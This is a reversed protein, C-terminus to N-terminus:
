LAGLANVRQNLPCNPIAGCLHRSRATDVFLRPQLDLHSGSPRLLNKNFLKSTRWLLLESFKVKPRPKAVCPRLLQRGM